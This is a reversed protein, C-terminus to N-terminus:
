RFTDTLDKRPRGPPPGFANDHPQGPLVGLAIFVGTYIVLGMLAGAGGPFLSVLGFAILNSVVNIAPAWWGTRGLDHLRRIWILLVAVGALLGLAVKGYAGLALILVFLPGVWLWYERRGARQSFWGGGSNDGRGDAVDRLRDNM